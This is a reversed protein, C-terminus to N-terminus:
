QATTGAKQSGLCPPVFPPLSEDTLQRLISLAKKGASGMLLSLDNVYAGLHAAITERDTEQAFAQILPFVANPNQRSATLSEAITRGIRACLRDGLSRSAVIVGLPFPTDGATETWYHGLDLVLQLNHRAFVLATEHILLGADVQGSLVADVIKDYRVFIFEPFQNNKALAAKLVAVATTNLGPVAITSPIDPGQPARVLKPGNGFGFAGGSPLITANDGLRLATAASVKIVDFEGSLAQSNLEEVDAFVFEARPAQKGVLGLIWPGFIFTDNPCPSIAVRLLTM